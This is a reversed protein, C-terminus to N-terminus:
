YFERIGVLLQSLALVLRPHRGAPSCSANARWCILLGFFKLNWVLKHVNRYSYLSISLYMSQYITFPLTLRVNTKRVKCSKAWWKEGMGNVIGEGRGRLSLNTVEQFYLWRRPNQRRWTLPSHPAQISGM